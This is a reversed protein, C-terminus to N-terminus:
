GRRGRHRPPSVNKVVSACVDCLNLAKAVYSPHPVNGLDRRDVWAYEDGEAIVAGLTARHVQFEVSRTTITHRFRGILEASAVTLPQGSLLETSGHPLHFMATMLPGSERRLLIRGGGDAILYLPVVLRRAIRKEKAAPYDSPRGAAFGVCQKRIPCEGCRPSRPTCVLAGLEM